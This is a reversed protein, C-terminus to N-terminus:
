DFFFLHVLRGNNLADGFYPGASHFCGADMIILRNYINGAVDSIDFKTSDYFNGNFADDAFEDLRHVTKNLKSRHLRTGSQIPADPTLYIIAAWKQQDYHYVQPDKATTVQFCGNCGHVDWNTIKEGIINEFLHKLETPRYTEKSRFGKYFRLDENYELGLAFDRVEDPNEYVNDVIFFRKTPRNLSFLSPQKEIYSEQNLKYIKSLGVLHEKRISNFREAKQYISIAANPYGLFQYLEAMLICANYCKENNLNSSYLNLYQDFYFISRRASEKRHELGLPLDKCEHADYYSKALLWFDSENSPIIEM